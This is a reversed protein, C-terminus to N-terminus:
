DFEATKLFQAVVNFQWHHYRRWVHSQRFANFQCHRISEPLINVLSLVVGSYEGYFAYIEQLHSLVIEKLADMTSQAPNWQNQTICHVDRFIWPQEQGKGGLWLAM